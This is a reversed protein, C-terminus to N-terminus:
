HALLCCAARRRVMSAPEAPEASLAHEYAGGRVVGTRDAATTPQQEFDKSGLLLTLSIQAFGKQAHLMHLDIPDIV